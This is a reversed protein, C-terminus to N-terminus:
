FRKCESTNPVHFHKKNGSCVKGLRNSFLRARQRVRLGLRGERSQALLCFCASSSGMM